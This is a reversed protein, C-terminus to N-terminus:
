ARWFERWGRLLFGGVGRLVVLTREAATKRGRVRRWLYECTQRLWCIPADLTFVLKYLFLVAAPEGAKRMAPVLGAATQAYVHGIRQRSSARGHHVIEVGPHYVVPRRRGVRNCLDIDEGGFAYEEDWGGVERFVDRRVLLAAGM